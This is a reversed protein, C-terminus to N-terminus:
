GNGNVGIFTPKDSAGITVPSVGKFLQTGYGVFDNRYVLADEGLTSYTSDIRQVELTDPDPSPREWDQFAIYEMPIELPGNYSPTVLSLLAETKTGANTSSSTPTRTPAVGSCLPEIPQCVTLWEGHDAFEYCANGSGGGVVWPGSGDTEYSLCIIRRDTHTTGCAFRNLICDESIPPQSIQVFKRWGYARNPDQVYYYQKFTSKLNETARQGYAYYYASRSFQPIAIVANISEGGTTTITTTNEFVRNRAVACYEPAEIFDSFYPPDYGLDKSVIQTLKVREQLTRRQDIDNTYMMKPFSRTGSTEVIDWNGALLCEGPYRPDDITNYIDQDPNYYFKAVKLDDGVFSVFVTTDCFPPAAGGNLPSADHSLLGPLLPEHPKFPLYKGLKGAGWLGGQSQIVLSASGTGIPTGSLRSNNVASLSINIQYHYGTQTEAGTEYGYATNHAERGSDGFAWGLATSYPSKSYFPALASPEMLRLVDGRTLARNLEATTNPFAEGSPICNLEEFVLRLDEDGRLILSDGFGAQLSRPLAPLPRALVGRNVGIEILWARGDPGMHIGHTRHWKYDYRVQVGNAKVDKLYKSLESDQKNIRPDTMKSIDIRGLGMVASVAKAMRGTYMSPKLGAYQSLGDGGTEENGVWTRVALRGNPSKGAPIEPFIKRCQATPAFTYMASGVLQGGFVVGSLMDPFNHTVVELPPEDVRDTAQPNASIIIRNVGNATLAYLYGEDTRQTMGFTSVGANTAVSQTKALLAKADPIQALAKAKDGELKILPTGDYLPM